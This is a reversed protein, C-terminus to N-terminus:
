LSAECFPNYISLPHHLPTEDLRMAQAVTQSTPPSLPPIAPLAQLQEDALRSVPQCKLTQHVRCNAVEDLWRRAHFNATGVDLQLGLQALRTSLPRYFSERLYRVMREVKGKTQARYPRCLRPTVGYTKAFQWLGSHFRHGGAAYAHRQLVVTKMNDYLVERPVGGFYEFANVHCGQLTEYHMDTTLEVYLMRSYGLVMLFAYLPQKGSRMVGWDVQAQHGPATEFRQVPTMTGAPRLQRLYGRVLTEGGTYGQAKIERFLVTAPLKEPLAATLREKLYATYPDLKSPRVSRTYSPKGSHKLYKKVTNRSIGLRKAIERQSVGQKYLIQIEMMHELTMM